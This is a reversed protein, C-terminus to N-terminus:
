YFTSLLKHYSDNQTLSPVPTPVNDHLLQFAKSRGCRSYVDVSKPNPHYLRYTAEKIGMRLNYVIINDKFKIYVVDKHPHFTIVRVFIPLQGAAVRMEEVCISYALCWKGVGNEEPHLEWVNMYPGNCSSYAVRLRGQSVGCAMFKGGTANVAPPRRIIRYFSRADAFPDFVLVGNPTILHLKSDHAVLHTNPYLWKPRRHHLNIILKRWKGSESCFKYIEMDSRPETLVRNFRYRPVLLVTYRYHTNNMINSINNNCISSSTNYYGIATFHQGEEKEERNQCQCCTLPKCLFGLDVDVIDVPLRPVKIWQRTLLNCIYYCIIPRNRIRCSCLLLDDCSAEPIIVVGRKHFNPLFSLDFHDWKYYFESMLPYQSFGQLQSASGAPRFKECFHYVLTFPSSSQFQLHLRRGVLNYSSFYVHTIMFYWLKCVVKCQLASKVPLRILIQLLLSKPLDNLLNAATSEQIQRLDLDPPGLPKNGNKQCPVLAM